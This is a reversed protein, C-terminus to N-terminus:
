GPAAGVALLVVESIGADRLTEMGGARAAEQVATASARQLVLEKMRDDMTMIEALAIRGRFGTFNCSDCGKGYAFKKDGVDM